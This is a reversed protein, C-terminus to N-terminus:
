PVFPSEAIRMVCDQGFPVVHIIHGNSLRMSENPHGAAFLNFARDDHPLLFCPQGAQIRGHMHDLTDADPGLMIIMCRLSFGHGDLRSWCYLNGSGEDNM